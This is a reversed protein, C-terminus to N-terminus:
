PFSRSICDITHFLGAGLVQLRAVGHRSVLLAFKRMLRFQGSHFECGEPKVAVLAAVARSNLKQELVQEGREDLMCHWSSRDGLDLGVTLKEPHMKRIAKGRTTSIKKM